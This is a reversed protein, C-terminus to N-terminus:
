FYQGLGLVFGGLGTGRLSHGYDVSFVTNYFQKLIFRGGVGGHVRIVDPDAFDGFTGGPLRWSGADLFGVAQVGIQETEVLTHRYETNLTLMGTGRDIRDGVGRVSIHNDLAFPAFPTNVNTSLGWIFRLAWNGRKGTRRYYKWAQRIIYFPDSGLEDLVVQTYTDVSLGSWYFYHPVAGRYFHNLRIGLKGIDLESPFLPRDEDAVTGLRYAEQFLSVGAQYEQRRTPTFFATANLSSNSYDYWATAPGKYLPEYSNWLTYSLEAGFKGVLFPHRYFLGLSHRLNYQYYAGVSIGRGLFNFESLGGIVTTIDDSSWLGVYPLVTKAEDTEWRLHVGASTTDLQYAVANFAPQLVLWRRMEELAEYSVTDGPRAGAIGDFFGRHTRELGEVEVSRLSLGQAQLNALGLMGIWCLFILRMM